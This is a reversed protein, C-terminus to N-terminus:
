AKNISISITPHSEGHSYRKTARQSKTGHVKKLLSMRCSKGMKAVAPRSLSDETEVAYFDLISATFLIEEATATLLM